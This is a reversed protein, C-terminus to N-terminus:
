FKKALFYFRSLIKKLFYNKSIYSAIKRAIIFRQKILGAIMINTNWRHPHTSIIVSASGNSVKILESMENVESDYSKKLDNNTIDDIIKFSFGADSIYVYNSKIKEKGQVVVDFIESFSKTVNSDRFFDKNSSWGNRNMVPNGHPCVSTVPFGLNEFKEVTLSFERLAEKMNGANSDLVDYHYTVEHGMDQIMRLLEINKDVLYSQVYFTARIGEAHEIKAIQVAKKVDTEVDHKLAIWKDSDTLNPIESITLCLTSDISKCFKEWESFILNM